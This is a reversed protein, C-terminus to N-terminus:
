IHTTSPNTPQPQKSHSQKKQVPCMTTISLHLVLVGYNLIYTQKNLFMAYRDGRAMYSIYVYSISMKSKNYRVKFVQFCYAMAKSHCTDIHLRTDVVSFFPILVMLQVIRDIGRYSIKKLDVIRSLSEFHIQIMEPNYLIKVSPYLLWLSCAKSVASTGQIIKSISYQLRIAV